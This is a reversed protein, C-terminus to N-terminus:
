PPWASVQKAIATMAADDADYFDRARAVVTSASAVVERSPLRMWTVGISCTYPPGEPHRGGPYRDCWEWAYAVLPPPSRPERLSALVAPTIDSGMADLDAYRGCAHPKAGPDRYVGLPELAPQRVMDNLQTEDSAVTLDFLDASALEARRHPVVPRATQGPASVGLAPLSLAARVEDLCGQVIRDHEAYADGLGDAPTRADATVPVDRHGDFHILLWGALAIGAVFFFAWGIVRSLV